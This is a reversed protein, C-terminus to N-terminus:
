HKGFRKRRNTELLLAADVSLPLQMAHNVEHRTLGIDRLMKDDLRAVTALANRSVREARRRLWWNGVQKLKSLFDGFISTSKVCDITQRSTNM